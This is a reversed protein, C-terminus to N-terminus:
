AVSRREILNKGIEYRYDPTGYITTTFFSSPLEKGTTVKYVQAFITKAFYSGIFFFVVIAIWFYWELGLLKKMSSDEYM